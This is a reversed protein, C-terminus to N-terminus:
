NLSHITGISYVLLMNFFITVAKVKANTQTGAQIFVRDESRAKQHAGSGGMLVRDESRAKQHAGSGGMLVRLQSTMLEGWSARTPLDQVGVGDRGKWLTM